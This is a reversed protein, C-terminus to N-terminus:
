RLSCWGIEQACRVADGLTHWADIFLCESKLWIATLFLQQVQAIGGVGRRMMGSLQDAADSFRQTLDQLSEGLESVLRTKLAPVVTQTSCACVRLLLCTFEPRNRRGNARNDWWSDYSTLFHPPYMPYYWYNPANFYNQVIADCYIRSPIDKTALEAARELRDNKAQSFLGDLKINGELHLYGLATLADDASLNDDTKIASQITPYFADDSGKRKMGAGLKISDSGDDTYANKVVFHCLNPVKRSACHHCPWQRSCKQKRRQCETCSVTHLSTSALETASEM